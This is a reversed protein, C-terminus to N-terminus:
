TLLESEAGRRKSLCKAFCHSISLLRAGALQTGLNYIYCCVYEVIKRKFVKRWPQHNLETAPCKWDRPEYRLM